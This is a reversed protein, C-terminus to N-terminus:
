ANEAEFLAIIQDATEARRILTQNSVGRLLRAIRSLVRLHDNNASEPVLLVFFLDVPANDPADMDVPTELRVFWAKTEKAGALRAHPISIGNGVATTGLRERECLANLIEREPLNMKIAAAEAVMRLVQKACDVRANLIVREASITEAILM